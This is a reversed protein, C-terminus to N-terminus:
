SVNYVYQQLIQEFHEAIAAFGAINAQQLLQLLRHHQQAFASAFQTAQSQYSLHWLEPAVGGKYELYPRYFGFRESHKDLWSTMAAFMGGPEYEFPALQLQYDQPMAALDYVDIDTGWHHRSTGPLASYLLIAQVKQWDSLEAMAVQKGQLDFVPRLGNFKQQWILCQRDFARFSSVLALEIGDTKAAQQMACFADATKAELWFGSELEILHAQHLGFLDQETLSM